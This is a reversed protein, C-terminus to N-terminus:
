NFPLSTLLKQKSNTNDITKAIFNKFCFSVPIRLYLSPPLNRMRILAPNIRNM